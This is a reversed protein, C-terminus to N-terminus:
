YNFLLFVFSLQACIRGCDLFSIWLQLSAMMFPDENMVFFILMCIDCLVEMNMLLYNYATNNLENSIFSLFRFELMSKYM